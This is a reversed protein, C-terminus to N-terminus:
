QVVTAETPKESDRICACIARVKKPPNLCKWGKGCLACSCKPFEGSQPPGSITATVQRFVQGFYAESSTMVEASMASLVESKLVELDIASFAKFTEADYRAEIIKAVVEFSLDMADNKSLGQEVFFEYNKGILRPLLSSKVQSTLTVETGAQSTVATPKMQVLAKQEFPQPQQRGDVTPRAELSTSAALATVISILLFATFKM